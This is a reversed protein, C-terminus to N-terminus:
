LEEKRQRRLKSRAFGLIKSILEDVNPVFAESEVDGSLDVYLQGGLSM